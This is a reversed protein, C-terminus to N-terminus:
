GDCEVPQPRDRKRDVICFFGFPEDGDNRLQHPRMPAVYAIDMQGLRRRESGVRLEGRGRVAIITHTHQHRELSSYGGPEIEFYRLDFSAEEGAVGILEHRSVGRFGENDSPQKYATAPRHQWGFRAPDFPLHDLLPPRATGNSRPVECSSFFEEPREPTTERTQPFRERIAELFQRTSAELDASHALLGGGILFITDAGYQRAMAPLRDFNMGGAPAPWAPALAGLPTRLRTGIADCERPSLSFRGGHNPFVSADCGALRTLMGLLVGPDIGMDRHTYYPGSFAPHAMIVFQHNEAIARVTDWGVIQPSILIGPLDEDELLQLVEDLQDARHMINPLYLCNRGTRANAQEVADRCRLVRARFAEFDAEIMNHDDKILDGGGRAFDGAIRALEDHSSGRPKLATALLPRGFVGVRRRLGDIGYRPGRWTALLTEPLDVDELRVKKKISVNGYLLNLLQALCQEALHAPYHLEARFRRRGAPEVRDVRGMVRPRLDAPVLQEPVEVTQELLLDRAIAEAQDPAADFTYVARIVPEATQGTTIAENPPTDPM